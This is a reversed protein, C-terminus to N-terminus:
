VQIFPYASRCVNGPEKNDIDYLTLNECRMKNSNRGFYKRYGRCGYDANRILWNKPCLEVGLSISIPFIWLKQGNSKGKGLDTLWLRNKGTGVRVPEIPLDDMFLIMAQWHVGGEPIRYGCFLPFFDCKGRHSVVFSHIYNKQSQSFLGRISNYNEVIFKNYVSPINNLLCYVGKFSRLEQYSKSIRCFM